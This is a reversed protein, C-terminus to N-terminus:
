LVYNKKNVDTVPRGHRLGLTQSYLEFNKRALWYLVCVLFRIHNEVLGYCGYILSIQFKQYESIIVGM